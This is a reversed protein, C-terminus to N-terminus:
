VNARRYIEEVDAMDLPRLRCITKTGNGTVYAAMEKIDEETVPKGLLEPISVPAEILRFFEVTKAIGTRAAALDDEEAAGWVKRAFRVFRGPADAYIYEAWTGWLASLSAGHIADYRASLPAGMTHIVFDWPGRGIGTMDNHSVSSAWMVEAMADYNGPDKMVEPGAAIMTRLLGEAIEDSLLAPGDEVFYRDMTHMMIDAIGSSLHYKPVTALLEPNMIAFLPRVLDSLKVGKKIGKEENTLVASRSMESGAAAITLVVGVPLIKELPYEGIWLPWFDLEPNAMGIAIAKATDIASGGGVALIFDAGFERGKEMGELAHSLLPNPQAGGFEMYALGDAELSDESRKMLGSRLVSGGGYVILVRSGGLGAITKGTKNEVGKGFIVRTPMYQEFDLM